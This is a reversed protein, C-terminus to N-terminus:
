ELIRVEVDRYINGAEELSALKLGPLGASATGAAVGWRVADVFDDNRCMAWVFAANLADGSGIPCVAEIRPPAVEAITGAHALFAGRRGLSLIVSEPGMDQIRRIAEQLHSRTVLARGLLREAEQQNPAVLTPQAEVGEELPGGDTDLLTKVGRRRAKEILRRYFDPPVGPPISGCLLLWAAEPLRRDVAEELRQVEAPELEPGREDLKVTLGQRDTISYNTRIERQIRVLEFPFGGRELMAEFKEGARGGSVAVAFTPMGFSHLVSSTKIGRGGPATSRALLYARDDFALHDATFNLDIAPNATLTLIL